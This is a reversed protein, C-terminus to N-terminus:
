ASGDGASEGVPGARSTAEVSGPGTLETALPGLFPTNRRVTVTCDLPVCECRVLEAGGQAAAKSAATCPDSNDQMALGRLAASAAALAASDAARETSHRTGEVAVWILACGVVASVLFLASVAWITASGRERQSARLDPVHPLPRMRLPLLPVPHLPKLLLRGTHPRPRPQSQRTARSRTYRSPPDIM